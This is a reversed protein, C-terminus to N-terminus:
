GAVGTRRARAHSWAAAGAFPLALLSLLFVAHYWVPFRSWLSYHVPVFLIFLVGALIPVAFRRTRAVLATIAGACLSALAGILLRLVLMPLTFAMAVEVEAYAPWGVRVVLNALTAVATWVILGAAVAAATGLM